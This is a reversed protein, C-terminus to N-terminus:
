DVNENKIQFKFEESLLLQAGSTVVPTRPSLTDSFVGDALVRDAPLAMREFRDGGRQVYVWTKGGFRVVASRPVRVGEIPESADALVRVRTGAPLGSPPTSLMWTEGQLGPIAQPVRGVLTGVIGAQQGAAAAVRWTQGRPDAGYPVAFQVLDLERAAARTLLTGSDGLREALADGWVVRVGDAVARREAQLAGARQEEFVLAARAAELERRTANRGEQFLGEIRALDARRQAVQGEVGAIQASLSLYRQRAEVLTRPDAVLGFYRQSALYRAPQPKQVVIGAAAQAAPEIFVLNGEVRAAPTPLEDDDDSLGQFEDRAFWALAWVLLVILVGQLLLASNKWRTEL